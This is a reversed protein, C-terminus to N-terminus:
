EERVVVTGEMSPHISCNYNYTGADTFLFEFSQGPAIIGSNFTPGTASHDVSDRNTWRVTDGASIEVSQPNFASDEITVEVIEGEDLPQPTVASVPTVPTEVPTVEEGVEGEDATDACGIALFAGLLVIFVMFGKRM